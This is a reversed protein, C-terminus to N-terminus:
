KPVGFRFRVGARVADSDPRLHMGGDSRADWTAHTWEAFVAIPTGALDIELGFGWILGEPRYKLDPYALDTGSMGALGYALAGPSVLVGLRLAATWVADSGTSGGALRASVDQLEYRALAGVVVREHKFDCGAGLGGQLGDASITLPGEADGSVQTSTITRGASAEGWCVVTARAPMISAATIAAVIAAAAISRRM